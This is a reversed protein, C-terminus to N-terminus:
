SECPPHRSETPIKDLDRSESMQQLLISRIEDEEDRIWNFIVTLTARADRKPKWGRVSALKRSDTVYIRVDAPRTKSDSAIDIHNGTIEECLRTTELLSLSATLGGGANFIQGHYSDLNQIQELVLDCIDDVHILDRV